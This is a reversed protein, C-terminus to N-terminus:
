RAKTTGGGSQPRPKPEDPIERTHNPTVGTASAAPWNGTDKGPSMSALPGAPFDTRASASLKNGYRTSGSRAAKDERPILDAPCASAGPRRRVEMQSRLTAAFEAVTMGTQDLFHEDSWGDGPYIAREEVPKVLTLQSPKRYTVVVGTIRAEAWPDDHGDAWTRFLEIDGTSWISGVTWAEGTATINVLDGSRYERRSAVSSTVAEQPENASPRRAGTM